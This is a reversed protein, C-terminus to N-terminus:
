DRGYEWKLKLKLPAQLIATASFFDVALSCDFLESGLFVRGRSSRRVFDVQAAQPNQFLVAYVGASLADQIRELTSCRYMIKMTPSLSELLTSVCAAIDQGSLEIIPDEIMVCDCFGFRAVKAGSAMMVTQEGPDGGVFCDIAALNAELVCSSINLYHGLQNQIAQNWLAFDKAGATVSLIVSGNDCSANSELRCQLMAGADKLDKNIQEVIIKLPLSHKKPVEVLHLYFSRLENSPLCLSAAYESEHSATLKPM